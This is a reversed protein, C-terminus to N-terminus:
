HRFLWSLNISPIKTWLYNMWQGVPITGVISALALVSIMFVLIFIFLYFMALGADPAPFYLIRILWIM